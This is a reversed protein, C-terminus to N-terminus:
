FRRMEALANGRNQHAPAFNPNIKLAQALQQEAQEFQGRQLFVLGLLHAADFQKPDALLISRYIQEADNLRGQKHFAVARGYEAQLMLTTQPPRQGRSPPGKPFGSKSMM